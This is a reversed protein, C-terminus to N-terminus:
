SPFEEVKGEAGAHGTTDDASFPDDGLLSPFSRSSLLTSSEEEKAPFCDIGSPDCIGEDLADGGVSEVGTCSGRELSELSLLACISCGGAEM